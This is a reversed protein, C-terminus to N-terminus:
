RWSACVLWINAMLLKILNARKSVMFARPAHYMWFKDVQYRRRLLGFCELCCRARPAQKKVKYWKENAATLPHITCCAWVYWTQLVWCQWPLWPLRNRVASYCSEDKPIHIFTKVRKLYFRQNDYGSQMVLTNDSMINSNLKLSEASFFVRAWNTLMKAADIKIPSSM